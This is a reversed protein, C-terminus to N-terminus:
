KFVIDPLGKNISYSSYSIEIRGKRNKLKEAETKPKGEDSFELTVGKPLKYDKTRFSIIVKDPLAYQSFKGYQMEMEYTGNEKTTSIAKKILLSPEDIYLTTLVVDSSEEVPLLKVIRLSQGELLQTGADLALFRETTLLSRMNISIGGKPLISIGGDKQLKFLDPKRFFVKVKGVPAKIFAVDTKMKGEATYDNVQDIKAKVKAVLTSVDQSYISSTIGLLLFILVIRM